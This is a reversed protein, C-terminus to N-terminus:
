RARVGLDGLLSAFATQGGGYRRRTGKQQQRGVLAHLLRAPRDTHLGRRVRAACYTLANKTNTETDGKYPSCIYVLKKKKM